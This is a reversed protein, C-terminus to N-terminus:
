WKWNNKKLNMINMNKIPSHMIFFYNNTNILLFIMTFSIFLSTWNLPSMQPM